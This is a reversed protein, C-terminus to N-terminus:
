LKSRLDAIQKEIGDIFSNDGSILAERIRRNTIKAELAVIDNLLSQRKEETLEEITKERYDWVQTYTEDIHFGTVVVDGTPRDTLTVPYIGEADAGVIVLQYDEIKELKDNTYM